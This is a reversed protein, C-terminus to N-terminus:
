RISQDTVVMDRGSLCPWLRDVEYFVSGTKGLVHANSDCIYFGEIRGKSDVRVSTVTIAHLDASPSSEQYFADSLVSIIVGQGNMVPAALQAPTLLPECHAPIGMETLLSARSSPTTGGEPTCLGKKYAFRYVSDESASLGAMRAVNECSCIGCSGSLHTKGQQTDLQKGLTDPSDFVCSGNELHWAQKTASPQYVPASPNGPQTGIQSVAGTYIYLDNLFDRYQTLIQCLSGLDNHFLASSTVATNLLAQMQQLSDDRCSQKLHEMEAWLQKSKEHLESQCQRLRRILLDAAEGSGCVASM